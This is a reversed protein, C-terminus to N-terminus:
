SSVFSNARNLGNSGEWQVWWCSVCWWTSECIAHSRQSAVNLSTWVIWEVRPIRVNHQPHQVTVLLRSRPRAFGGSNAYCDWSIDLSTGDILAAEFFPVVVLTLQVVSSGWNEISFKLFQITAKYTSLWWMKNYVLQHQHMCWCWTGQYWSVWVWQDCHQIRSWRLYLYTYIFINMIAFSSLYVHYSHKISRPAFM